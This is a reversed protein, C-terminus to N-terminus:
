PYPATKSPSNEQKVTAKLVHASKSVHLVLIPVQSSFPPIFRIILQYHRLPRDRINLRQITSLNDLSMLLKPGLSILCITDNGSYVPNSKHYCLIWGVLDLLFRLLCGELAVRLIFASIHWTLAPWFLGPLVKWIWSIWYSMTCSVLISGWFWASALEWVGRKLHLSPVSGGTEQAKSNLM